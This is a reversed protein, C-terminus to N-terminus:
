PPPWPEPPGAGGAGAHDWGSPQWSCCSAAPPATRDRAAADAVTRTDGNAGAGDDDDGADPADPAADPESPGADSMGASPVARITINQAGVLLERGALQLHYQGPEFPGEVLARASVVGAADETYVFPASLTYDATREEDKAGEAWVIPESGPKLIVDLDAEVTDAQFPNVM